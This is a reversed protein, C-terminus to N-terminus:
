SKIKKPRGRKNNLMPYKLKEIKLYTYIQEEFIQPQDLLCYYVTFSDINNKHMEQNWKIARRMGGGVVNNIRYVLKHDIEKGISTVGGSKGFYIFEYLINNIEYTLHNKINRNEAIPIFVFYVGDKNPVDKSRKRLEAVASDNNKCKDFIFHQFRNRAILDIIKSKM